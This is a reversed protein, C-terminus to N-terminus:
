IRRIQRERENVELLDNQDIKQKIKRECWRERAPFSWKSACDILCEHLQELHKSRMRNASANAHPYFIM